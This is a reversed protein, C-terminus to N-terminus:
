PDKKKRFGKQKPQGKSWVTEPATLASNLRSLADELTTGVAACSRRASPDFYGARWSTGDASLSLRGPTRLVDGVAGWTLFVWLAPWRLAFEPDWDLAVEEHGDEQAWQALKMEAPSIDRNKAM